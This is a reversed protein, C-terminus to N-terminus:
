QVTCGYRNHRKKHKNKTTISNKICGKKLVYGMIVGEAKRSCLTLPSQPKIAASIKSREIIEIDM